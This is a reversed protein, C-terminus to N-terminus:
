NRNRRIWPRRPSKTPTPHPRTRTQKQPWERTEETRYTTQFEVPGRDTEILSTGVLTGDGLDRVSAPHAIEFEVGRSMFLELATSVNGDRIAHLVVRFIGLSTLQELAEAPTCRDAQLGARTRRWLSSIAAHAETTDFPEGRQARNLVDAVLEGPLHSRTDTM